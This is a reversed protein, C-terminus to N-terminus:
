KSKSRQIFFSGFGNILIVAYLIYKLQDYTFWGIQVLMILTVLALLILGQLILHKKM